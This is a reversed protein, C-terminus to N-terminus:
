LLKPFISVETLLEENSYTRHEINEFNTSLYKKGMWPTIIRMWKYRPLIEGTNPNKRTYHILSCYNLRNPEKPHLIKSKYDIQSIREIRIRFTEMVDKHTVIIASGNPSVHHRIWHIVRETRLTLHAISEGNPPTWYFSDRIREKMNKFFEKDISNYNLAAFEGFDRPRLYLSPVWEAQPLDLLAATELSRVYEGTIFSDLPQNFNEKIWKGTSKAQIRGFETLKWKSSHQRVFEHSLLGSDGLNAKKLAITGESIGNRVLILDVPMLNNKTITFFRQIM